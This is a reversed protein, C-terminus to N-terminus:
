PPTPEGGSTNACVPQPPLPVQVARTDLTSPMGVQLERRVPSSPPTLTTRPAAVLAVNATVNGTTRESNGNNSSCSSRGAANANCDDYPENPIIAPGASAPRSMPTNPM